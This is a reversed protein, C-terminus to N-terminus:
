WCLGVCAGLFHLGEVGEFWVVDCGDPQDVFGVGRVGVGDGVGVAVVAGEGDGVLQVVGAFHGAPQGLALGVGRRCQLEGAAGLM